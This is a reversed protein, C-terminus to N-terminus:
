TISSNEANVRLTLRFCSAFARSKSSLRKEVGILLALSDDHDTFDPKRFPSGPYITYAKHM